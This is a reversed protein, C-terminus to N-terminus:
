SRILRRILLAIGAALILAGAVMIALSIDTIQGANELRDLASNDVHLRDVASYTNGLNSGLVATGILIILTGLGILIRDLNKKLTTM